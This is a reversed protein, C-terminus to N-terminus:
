GQSNEELQLTCFEWSFIRILPSALQERGHVPALFSLYLESLDIFKDRRQGLSDVDVCPAIAHNHYAVPCSFSLRRLSNAGEASDLQRASKRSSVLLICFLAYALSLNIGGPPPVSTNRDMWSSRSGPSLPPVRTHLAGKAERRSTELNPSLFRGEETFAPPFSRPALFLPPQSFHFM